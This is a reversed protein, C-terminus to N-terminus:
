NATINRILGGYEVIIKETPVELGILTRQLKTALTPSSNVLKVSIYDGQSFYYYRDKPSAVEIEPYLTTLIDKTYTAEYSVTYDNQFTSEDMPDLYIPICLKKYHIIQVTYQNGTKDIETLFNEYMTPTLYGQNRIRDAFYATKTTVLTQSISDEATAIYVTPALVLLIVAVLIGVIKSFANSM